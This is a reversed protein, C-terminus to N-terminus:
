EKFFLTFKYFQLLKESELLSLDSFASEFSLLYAWVPMWTLQMEYNLVFLLIFVFKFYWFQYLPNPSSLGYQPYLYFYNATQQMDYNPIM